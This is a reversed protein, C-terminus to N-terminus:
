AAGGYQEKVRTKYKSFAASLVSSRTGISNAIDMWTEGDKKRQLLTPFDFPIDEFQPKEQLIFTDLDDIVPVPGSDNSSEGMVEKEWDSLEDETSQVEEQQEGDEFVIDDGVDNEIQEKKDSDTQEQIEESEEAQEVVEAAVGGDQRWEDWKAALPAVSERYEDILDVIKGSSIGYENALRLYTEGNDIREIWDHIPYFEKPRPALGSLIFEDVVERSIEEPINEIPDAKKPVGLDLELQEGEPKIESVVGHEDVKYSKIPKETRANIEVNYRVVESEIAILVRKGSMRKLMDLKGAIADGEAVITFVVDDVAVFKKLVAEFETYAM